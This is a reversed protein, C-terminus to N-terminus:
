KKPERIRYLVAFAFGIIAIFFGLYFLVVFGASWLFTVAAGIAGIVFGLVILILSFKEAREQEM